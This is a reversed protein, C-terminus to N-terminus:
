QQLMTLTSRTINARPLTDLFVTGQAINGLVSGLSCPIYQIIHDRFIMDNAIPGTAVSCMWVARHINFISLTLILVERIIMLSHVISRKM